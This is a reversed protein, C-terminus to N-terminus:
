ATASASDLTEEKLNKDIFFLALKVNKNNKLLFELYIRSEGTM